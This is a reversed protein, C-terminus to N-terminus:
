HYNKQWIISGDSSLKIVYYTNYYDQGLLIYGGDIDQQVFGITDNGPGGYTKAWLDFDDQSYSMGAFAVIFLLSFIKKMEKIWSGIRECLNNYNMKSNNEIHKRM